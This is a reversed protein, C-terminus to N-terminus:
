GESLWTRIVRAVREPSEEAEKRVEEEVSIERGGKGGDKVAEELGTLEEKGKRDRSPRFALWLMLLGLLAVLVGGYAKAMELYRRMKAMKEARKEEETLPRQPLFSVTVVDGRKPDAGVAAAVLSKIAERGIRVKSKPPSIIAVGVTIREIEGPLRRRRVKRRGVAYEVVSEERRYNSGKAAVSPSAGRLTSVVGAAGGVFPVEGKYAEVKREERVMAPRGGATATPYVEESESEESERGMRVAVRVVARGPGFIRELLSQVRRQLALAVEQETGPPIEGEGEGYLLRGKTDVVTVESAELGEVAKAVLNAIAAVQAGSLSAGERLRVMVSASPKAGGGLPAEDPMVIHVRAAEVAEMQEITEELEGQLARLYLVREQFRTVGFPLKEFVEFGVKGKKPMGKSALVLRAREVQHRPVEVTRGGHKSQYPIGARELEKTVEAAEEPTLDTCLVAMKPRSMVHGVVSGVILVGVAISLIAVKGTTSLNRWREAIREGVEALREGM